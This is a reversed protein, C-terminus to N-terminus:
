PRIKDCYILAAGLISSYKDLQQLEFSAQRNGISCSLVRAKEDAQSAIQM